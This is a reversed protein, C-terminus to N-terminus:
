SIVSQFSLFQGHTEEGHNVVADTIMRAGVDPSNALWRQMRVTLAGAFTKAFDRNFGTSHVAGPSTSNIVAVSPPVIKALKAVFFQGLLKSVFMRDTADVDGQQDLGALLPMKTRERFPTFAAVESLTFMIRTPQANKFKAIVPLLLIALLATSLYNVQVVEDHGTYENFVRGLPTWAGANLVVFDLRQLSREAREAFSVVSDYVSLDLKWVEVVVISKDLNLDATLKGAAREGKEENRVALILRSLGLELLQRATQFGVGSNSGTIIATKGKLDVDKVPVPKYTLQRYLYHFFSASPLQSSNSPTAM